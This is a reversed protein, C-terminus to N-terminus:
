QKISYRCCFFRSNMRFKKGVVYDVEKGVFRLANLESSSYSSGGNSATLVVSAGIPGSVGSKPVSVGKVGLLSSLMFKRRSKFFLFGGLTVIRDKYIRVIFESTFHRLMNYFFPLWLLTIVFSYNAGRSELWVYLMFIFGIVFAVACLSGYLVDVRSANYEVYDKYKKVIIDDPKEIMTLRNENEWDSVFFKCM